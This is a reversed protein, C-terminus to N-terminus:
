LRLVLKLKLLEAPQCVTCMCGDHLKTALRRVEIITGIRHSELM